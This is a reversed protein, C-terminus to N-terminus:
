TPLTLNQSVIQKQIKLKYLCGKCQLCNGKNAPNNSWCSTTHYLIPIINKHKAQRALNLIDDVTSNFYDGQINTKRLLEFDPKLETVRALNGLLWCPEAAGVKFYYAWQYVTKVVGRDVTEHLKNLIREIKPNFSTTFETDGINGDITILPLLRTEAGSITGVLQKRLEAIVSKETKTLIDPKDGPVYLPQILYDTELLLQIIKYTSYIDGTWVVYNKRKYMNTNKTNTKNNTKNNTNTNTDPLSDAPAQQHPNPPTSLPNEPSTIQSTKSNYFTYTAYAALSLLIAILYVKLLLQLLTPNPIYDQINGFM